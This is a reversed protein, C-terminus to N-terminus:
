PAQLRLQGDVQEFRLRSLVDMGLLPADLGPLVTFRLRQAQVGGQLQLDARAAWGQVTGGATASQV